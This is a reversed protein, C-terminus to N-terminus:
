KVIILIGKSIFEVCLEGSSVSTKVKIGPVPAGGFVPTVAFKAEAGAALGAGQTLVIPTKKPLSRSVCALEVTATGSSPAVIACQAKTVTGDAAVPLVMKAGDALSVGGSVTAAGPNEIVGGNQVTVRKSVIGGELRLKGAVTIASNTYGVNPKVVATADADIFTTGTHLFTTQPDFEFTGHGSINIRGKGKFYGKNRDNAGAKNKTTITIPNGNVNDTTITTGSGTNAFEISVARLLETTGDFRSGITSYGAKLVRDTGAAVILGDNATNHTIIWVMAGDEFSVPVSSSNPYIRSTLFAGPGLYRFTGSSWSGGNSNVTVTNGETSRIALPAGSAMTLKGGVVPDVLEVEKSGSKELAGTNVYNRVIQKNGSSNAITAMGQGAGALDIDFAGANSTFSLSSFATRGTDNVNVLRNTGSFELVGGAVPADQATWNRTTSWAGDAGLGLWVNRAAASSGGIMLSAAGNSVAITGTCGSETGDVFTFSLNAIQAADSADFWIFDYTGNPMAGDLVVRVTSGAGISLSAGRLDLLPVGGASATGVVFDFTAGAACSFASPAIISRYDPTGFAAGSELALAGIRRPLGGCGAIMGGSEVTFAGHPVDNDLLATAGGKVVTEGTQHFKAGAGFLFKGSGAVNLKGSGYFAGSRHSETVETTVTIPSGNAGDTSITTGNVPDTLVINVDRALLTTSSYGSRITCDGLAVAGARSPDEADRWGSVIVGDSANNGTLVVTAGGDVVNTSGYNRPYLRFSTFTGPGIYSLGGVRRYENGIKPVTVTEGESLRLEVQGEFTTIDYITSQKAATIVLTGAGYKRIRSDRIALPVDLTATCGAEVFFDGNSVNLTGTGSITASEAFALRRVSPSDADLAITAGPTAFRAGKGEPFTEGADWNADGFAGSIGGSWVASTSIEDESVVLVLADGDLDLSLNFGGLTTKDLLFVEIGCEAVNNVITYRGAALGTGEVPSITVKAGDNHPFYVANGANWASPKTDLIRRATAGVTMRLVSGGEFTVGKAFTITAAGAGLDLIGGRKVLLPAKPVTTNICATTGADVTILGTNEFKTADDFRFTGGGVLNLKGSGKIIAQQSPATQMVIPTGSLNRTTITTGVEDDTLVLTVYRALCIESGDKCSGVTCNGLRVECQQKGSVILGDDAANHTTLWVVAGQDFTVIHSLNNPYVRGTSTFTGPGHITYSGTIPGKGNFSGTQSGGNLNIVTDAAWSPLAAAVCIAAIAARIMKAEM